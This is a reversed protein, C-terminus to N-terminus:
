SCKLTSSSIIIVSLQHVIRANPMYLSMSSKCVSVGSADPKSNVDNPSGKCMSFMNSTKKSSVFNTGTIELTLILKGSYLYRLSYKLLYM